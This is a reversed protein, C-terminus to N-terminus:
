GERNSQNPAPSHDSIGLLGQAPAIESAYLLSAAPLGDGSVVELRRFKNEPAPVYVFERDHIHLIASSPVATRMETTQGRFTAKAFM